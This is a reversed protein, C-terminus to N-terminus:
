TETWYVINPRETSPKSAKKNKKDDGPPPNPPPAGNGGNPDAPTPTPSSVQIANRMAAIVAEVDFVIATIDRQVKGSRGTSKIRFNTEPKTTLLVTPKNQEDRFDERVGKSQLFEIFAKESDFPGQQPDSRRKLVEDAIEDTIEKSLSKIVEKSAYNINISKAGYVTVRPALLKYFEDNMEAVMHLEELTKFPQNPPYMGPTNGMDSYLSAEDGGNRGAKDEDVWDAINNILANFDYGSYRRAFEEDSEMKSLFIQKLQDHTAKFLVKSEKELALDNLDIKSSESEITAFYTGQMTSNKVASKISETDAIGAEQPVIPPWMFPVNWIMDLMSAGGPANKLQDGLSAAATRFIHIRLLSIEVGAKAAYHAKVQNMSQASVALEVNTEYMIETAIILLMTVTFIAMMLAAGSEDKLM